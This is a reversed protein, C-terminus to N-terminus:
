VSTASPMQTVLESEDMNELEESTYRRSLYGRVMEESIIQGERFVYEDTPFVNQSISLLGKEFEEVNYSSVLNASTLGRAPSLEYPVVSRYFAESSSTLMEDQEEPQVNSVENELSADNMQETIEAENAGDCAALMLLTGVALLLSKFKM